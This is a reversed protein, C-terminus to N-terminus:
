SIESILKNVLPTFVACVAAFVMVLIVVDQDGLLYTSILYAIMGAIILTILIISISRFLRHGMVPKLFEYVQRVFDSKESFGSEKKIQQMLNDPYDIKGDLYNEIFEKLFVQAFMPDEESRIFAPLEREFFIMLNGAKNKELQLINRPLSKYLYSLNEGADRIFQIASNRDDLNTRANILLGEAKICNYLLLESAADDIFATEKILKFRALVLGCIYAIEYTFIIAFFLYAIEYWLEYKVITSRSVILWSILYVIIGLTVGMKTFANRAPAREEIENVFQIRNM